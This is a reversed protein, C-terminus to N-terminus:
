YPADEAAAGERGAAEAEAAEGAAAAYNATVKGESILKSFDAALKFVPDKPGILALRPEPADLEPAWSFFKGKKNQDPVSRLRWRHAWLPPRIERGNPGPYVLGAARMLMAKYRKIQTSAFGVMVRQPFGGEPVAVGYLYFTEVMENGDPLTLKGFTPKGKTLSLVLESDKAEIGQFGGGADRPTYKVYNHDREVPYFALGRAGDWLEGTAVNLLMGSRAGALGGQEPPLVQPSNSQLIRLFPIMMESRDIDRLGAGAYDGYDYDVATSVQTGPAPAEQQTKHQQKPNAM